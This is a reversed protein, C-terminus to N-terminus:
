WREGTREVERIAQDAFKLAREYQGISAYAGALCSLNFSSQFNAGTNRHEALAHDM